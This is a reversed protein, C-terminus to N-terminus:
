DFSFAKAIHWKGKIQSQAGDWMGPQKFEDILTPQKTIM